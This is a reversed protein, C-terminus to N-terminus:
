LFGSSHLRRTLDTQRSLLEAYLSKRGAVPEARTAKDIRVCHATLDRLLTSAGNMTRETWAAQVAAGLAAGEATALGVVPLNFVDACIQRWAASHSGGGTLRIETPKVGLARFRALGYALGLTVGEMVARAINGPEMNATTMGHLVGSGRPLNPTREGNLYPLFLLGGAGPPVGAVAADLAGHDYGFLKRVAETAVTVNMTCALPLWADTSDCFAAVEGNEDVVPEASYAYLTGSTGLSATMCGGPAVNGTGIAGMMNDGGGASVLVTGRLGWEKALSDRLLGCPKRSSGLPPLKEHVGTNIFDLIPQSWARTRVDLLATGSADGYEMRKEGTLWFNLYDHPLLITRTAAWNAPENQKLWLIKPATYGPLMTNGTLAIIEDAGGFEANFQECQATTSTDCWLKAPRVPEGAENLVVLGHQQGSVGIGRVEKRREAGLRALVERVASDAAEQWTEPAQEAHGPPLGAILGYAVSASAVIEGSAADLAVCKTSQTGSDLGLYLM